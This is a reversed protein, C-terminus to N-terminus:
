CMTAMTGLAVPYGLTTQLEPMHALRMAERSHPLAAPEALLHVLRPKVLQQVVLEPLEPLVPLLSVIPPRRTARTCPRHLRHRCPSRGPSPVAMPPGPPQMM